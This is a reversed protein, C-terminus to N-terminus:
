RQTTAPMKAPDFTLLWLSRYDGMLVRKGDAFSQLVQNPIVREHGAASVVEPLNQAKGSNIDTSTFDHGAWLSGNRHLYPPFVTVNPTISASAPTIKPGIAVFPNKHLVDPQDTRLDMDFIWCNTSMILHDGDLNSFWSGFGVGSTQYIQAIVGASNIQWVGAKERSGALMVIRDRSPDAAMCPADWVLTDDLPSHKDKRRSSALVDCRANKLDYRIIYGGDGLGAFLSDDLYAISDVHDTPLGQKSNILFGADGNLPFAMIGIGRSSLYYCDDSLCAASDSSCNPPIYEEGTWQLDLKEFRTAPGEVLPLRLLQVFRQQATHGLGIAWINDGRVLCHTLFDINELGLTKHIECVRDARSWPTKSMELKEEAPPFDHRAKRFDWMVYLEKEHQKGTISADDMIHSNPRFFLDIAMEWATYVRDRDSDSMPGSILQKAFTSVPQFSDRLDDLSRGGCVATSWIEGAKGCLQFVPDHSGQFKQYLPVIAKAYERLDSDPYAWKTADGSNYFGYPHWREYGGFICRIFAKMEDGGIAHAKKQPTVTEYVPLWEDAIVKCLCDAFEARTLSCQNLQPVVFGGLGDVAYEVSDSWDPAHNRAGRTAAWKRVRDIEYDRYRVRLAELSDSRTAECNASLFAGINANPEVYSGDILGASSSVRQYDCCFDLARSLQAIATEIPTSASVNSTLDKALRQKNIWDKPNLAYAAESAALASASQGHSRFFDSESAFRMSERIADGPGPSSAGIKEVVGTLLQRALANADDAVTNVTGVQEGQSDSLIVAASYAHSPKGRSIELELFQLSPMLPASPRSTPLGREKNVQDLYSRELITIDKNALLQRQLIQGIGDCFRDMSSGLDANRVTLLCVPHTPAKQKELCLQLADAAKIAQKDASRESLIQDNLRAAQAPM